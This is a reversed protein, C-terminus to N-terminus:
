EPYTYEYDIQGDTGHFRFSIRDPATVNVTLFGGQVNHYPQMPKDWGPSGSAHADSAPGCSFERLGTKPDVSMYQWHRDGCVVFLNDLKNKKTWARFENGEHYFGVNAHSDMKNPRDPGVVPTPSVLVKFGADSELITRKLWAKQEAGWISKGPGD